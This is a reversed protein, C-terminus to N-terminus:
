LSCSGVVVPTVVELLIYQANYNVAYLSLLLVEVFLYLAASEVLIHLIPVLNGKGLRIEASRRDTQWLRFAM